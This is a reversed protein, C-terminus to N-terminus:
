AIDVSTVQEWNGNNNLFVIRKTTSDLVYTAAAADLYINSATTDNDRITITYTASNSQLILMQGYFGGSITDLDDTTGTEPILRRYVIPLDSEVEIAGSAITPIVGQDDQKIQNGAANTNKFARNNRWVFYNTTMASSFAYESDITNGSLEINDYVLIDITSSAVDGTQRGLWTLAANAGTIEKFTNGGLVANNIVRTSGHGPPYLYWGWNCTIDIYNDIFEAKLV